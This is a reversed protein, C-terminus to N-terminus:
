STASTSQGLIANLVLAGNQQRYEETVQEAHPAPRIGFPNAQVEMLHECDGSDHIIQRGGHYLLHGGECYMDDMEYAAFVVIRPHRQAFGSLWELLEVAREGRCSGKAIFGVSPADEIRRTVNAFQTRLDTEAALLENSLPGIGKLEVTLDVKM